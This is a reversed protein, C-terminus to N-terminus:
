AAVPLEQLVAEATTEPLALVLAMSEFSLYRRSVAWEDNQEALLAGALRIAAQDNPFIGVVDSRRGIEKNVRELSRRRRAIAEINAKRSVACNRGGWLPPDPGFEPHARQWPLM